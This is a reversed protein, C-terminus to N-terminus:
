NNEYALALCAIPLFLRVNRYMTTASLEFAKQDLATTIGAIGTYCNVLINYQQNGSAGLLVHHALLSLRKFNRLPRDM